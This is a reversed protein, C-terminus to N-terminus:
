GGNRVVEVVGGGGNVEVMLVVVVLDVKIFGVEPPLELVLVVRAM